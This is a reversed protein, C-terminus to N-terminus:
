LWIFLTGNNITKPAETRFSRTNLLRQKDRLIKEYIEDYGSIGKLMLSSLKNLGNILIHSMEVVEHVHGHIEMIELHPLRAIISYAIDLLNSQQWVIFLNLQRLGNSMLMNCLFSDNLLDILTEEEWHIKCDYVAKYHLELIRLNTAQSLLLHLHNLHFPEAISLATIQHWPVIPPSFSLFKEKIQGNDNSM